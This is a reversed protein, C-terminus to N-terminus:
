ALIWRLCCLDQLSINEPNKRFSSPKTDFVILSELMSRSFNGALLTLCSALFILTDLDVALFMFIDLSGCAARICGHLCWLVSFGGFLALLFCDLCVLKSGLVTKIFFGMMLCRVLLIFKVLLFEIWVSEEFHLCIDCIHLSMYFPELTRGFSMLASM